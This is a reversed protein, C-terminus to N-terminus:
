SYYCVLTYVRVSQWFLPRCVGLWQTVFLRWAGAGVRTKHVSDWDGIGVHECIVCNRGIHILWVRKDFLHHYCLFATFHSCHLLMEDAAFHV